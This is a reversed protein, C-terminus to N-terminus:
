TAVPATGVSFTAASATGAKASVVATLVHGADAVVPTYAAATAGAIAACIRGNANCREWQFSTSAPTTTWLGASATLAKGVVATGTITPRLSSALTATKAAVPGALSAYAPKKGSTDSATVTLGITHVADKTVLTYTAKTAGHVSKCHAGNADCRYWQFHFAIPQV